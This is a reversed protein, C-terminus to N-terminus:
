SAGSREGNTSNPLPVQGLAPWQLVEGFLKGAGVEGGHLLSAHFIIKRGQSAANPTGSFSSVTAPTKWGHLVLIAQSITSPLPPRPGQYCLLVPLNVRFCNLSGRPFSLGGLLNLWKSNPRRKNAASITM